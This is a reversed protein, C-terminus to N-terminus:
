LDGCRCRVSRCLPCRHCQNYEWGYLQSHIPRSKPSSLNNSPARSRGLRFLWRDDCGGTRGNLVLSFLNIKSCNYNDRTTAHWEESERASEPKTERDPSPAPTQSEGQKHQDNNFCRKTILYASYSVAANTRKNCDAHVHPSTCTNDAIRHQINILLIAMNYDFVPIIPFFHHSAYKIVM